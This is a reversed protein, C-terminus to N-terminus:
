VTFRYGKVDEGGELDGSMGVLGSVLRGLSTRSGGDYSGWAGLVVDGDTTAYDQPFGELASASM